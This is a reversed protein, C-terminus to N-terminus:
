VVYHLALDGGREGRRPCDPCLEDLLAYAHRIALLTSTQRVPQERFIRGALRRALDTRGLKQALESRVGGLVVKVGRAEVREVFHELLAVGVADPNRARKVRLVVVATREEIRDEIAEFHSELAASSGFFLEGELGFVLIRPCPRDEPLREQIRGEPSIVFETLLMRGARPVTLLFSMFIGILVCFEISIAVASVATVGVIAADFRTMRLHYALARWDIMRYASVVLIGALAARPVSRAYPAFLLVILGVAVASWVGSWQTVAGAQQNIASRTLSGSGPFSLFFSGTFNAVGESLCLQNMDLKQHSRAALAKAMAIAELLGLVAIAFAGTSLQQVMALGITPAQFSPLTAPIEGIVAVGREELDLLVVLVAMAVVVLLLDPLLQWGLRAKLWRLGVVAAVTGLGIAATEPHMGGGEALTRWFRVLFHDHVGGTGRMGVLNKLQDLVLLTGAGLTFGVIVSHSIYRTLDGLRLLTIGLQISGVLFALLIAAEVRREPEIVSLASLLAISIANTPGNVLQRSSSFLAGVATMMIATYLGYEPALGAVMAYAMAQPVAVAAVTLGALLDARAAAPGYGRLVGLAPVLRLL